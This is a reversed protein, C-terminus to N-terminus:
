PVHQIFSLLFRSKGFAYDVLACDLSLEDSALAKENTRREHVNSDHNNIHLQAVHLLHFLDVGGIFQHHDTIAYVNETFEDGLSHFPSTRSSAVSASTQTRILDISARGHCIHFRGSEVSTSRSTSSM